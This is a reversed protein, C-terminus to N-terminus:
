KFVIESSYNIGDIKINLYFKKNTMMNKSIDFDVKVWDEEGITGMSMERYFNGDEDTINITENQAKTFEDGDM